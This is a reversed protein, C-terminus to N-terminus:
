RNFSYSILIMSNTATLLIDIIFAAGFDVTKESDILNFLDEMTNKLSNDITVGMTLILDVLVETHNLISDLLLLTSYKAPWVLPSTSKMHFIFYILYQPLKTSKLLDLNNIVVENLRSCIDMVCLEDFSETVMANLLSVIETCRVEPTAHVLLEFIFNM